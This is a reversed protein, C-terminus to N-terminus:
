LVMQQRWTQIWLHIQVTAAQGRIPINNNLLLLLLLLVHKWAIDSVFEFSFSM